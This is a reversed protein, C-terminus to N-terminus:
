ISALTLWYFAKRPSKEVGEGLAYMRGLLLQAKAHGARAAKRFQKHATPSNFFGTNPLDSRLIM